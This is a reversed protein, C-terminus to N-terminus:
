TASKQPKKINEFAWKKPAETFVKPYALHNQFGSLYGFQNLVYM